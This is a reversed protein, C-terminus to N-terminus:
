YMYDAYDSARHEELFAQQDEWDAQVLARQDDEDLEDWHESTGGHSDWGHEECISRWVFDHESINM